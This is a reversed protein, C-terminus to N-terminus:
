DCNTIKRAAITVAEATEIGGISQWLAGMVAAVESVDTEDVLAHSVTRVRTFLEGTAQRKVGLRSRLEAVLASRDFERDPVTPGIELRLFLKEGVLQFWFKVPCSSGWRPADAVQFAQIALWSKQVFFIDSARIRFAELDSHESLFSRFAEALIPTQGHEAILDLAVRHQSYIRKCAAILEESVVIRREILEIYQNIVQLAASPPPSEAVLRKLEASVTGYDLAGWTDDEGDYGEPTLFCGMFKYDSYRQEVQQRYDALQESRESADIKNEVVFMLNLDPIQVTIDFHDRECYVLAGSIDGVALSLKSVPPAPHNTAAALLFARLFRDALGHAEAPDLLFALFRSHRIEQRIVNLAEFVNFTNGLSFRREFASLEDLLSLLESESQM